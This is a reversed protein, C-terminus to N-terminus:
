EYSLKVGKIRYGQEDLYNIKSRRPENYVSPPDYLAPYNLLEELAEEFNPFVQLVNLKCAHGCTLLDNRKGADPHWLMYGHIVQSIKLTRKRLECCNACWNFLSDAPPKPYNGGCNNCIYLNEPLNNMAKIEELSMM